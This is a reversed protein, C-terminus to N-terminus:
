GDKRPPNEKEIESQVGRLSAKGTDHQRMHQMEEESGGVVRSTLKICRLVIPHPESIAPLLIYKGTYKPNRAPRDWDAAVRDYAAQGKDQTNSKPM